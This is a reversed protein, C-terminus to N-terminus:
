VQEKDSFENFLQRLSSNTPHRRLMDALFKVDEESKKKLREKCLEEIWSDFAEDSFTVCLDLPIRIPHRREFNDCDTEWDICVDLSLMNGSEGKIGYIRASRFSVAYGTGRNCVIGLYGDDARDFPPDVLVVKTIDHREKPAEKNDCIHAKIAKWLPSRYFFERTQTKIHQGAYIHDVINGGVLEYTSM